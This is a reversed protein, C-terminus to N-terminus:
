PMLGRLAWKGSDIRELMAADRKEGAQAALEKAFAEMWEVMMLAFSNAAHEPVSASSGAPAPVCAAIYHAEAAYYSGELIFFLLNWLFCMKEAFSQEM